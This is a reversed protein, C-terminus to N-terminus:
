SIHEREDACLEILQKIFQMKKANVMRLMDAACKMLHRSRETQLLYHPPQLNVYVMCIYTCVYVHINMCGYGCTAKAKM